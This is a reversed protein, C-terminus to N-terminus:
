RRLACCGACERCASPQHQPSHCHAPCISLEPLQCRARRVQRIGHHDVRCSAGNILMMLKRQGAQGAPAAPDNLEVMCHKIMPSLDGAEFVGQVPAPCCSHANGHIMSKSGAVHPPCGHTRVSVCVHLAVAADPALQTASLSPDATRVEAQIKTMAQSLKPPMTKLSHLLQLESRTLLLAQAEAKSIATVPESYSGHLYEVPVAPLPRHDDDDYSSGYMNEVNQVRNSSAHQQPPQSGPAVMQGNARTMWAPLARARGRGAGEM